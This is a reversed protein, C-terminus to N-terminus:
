YNKDVLFYLSDDKCVICTQGTATQCTFAGEMFLSIVVVRQSTPSEQSKWFSFEMHASEAPITHSRNSELPALLACIQVCVEDSTTAEPIAIDRGTGLNSREIVAVANFGRLPVLGSEARTGEVGAVGTEGRFDTVGRSTGTARSKPLGGVEGRLAADGVLLDEGRDGVFAVEGTVRFVDGRGEVLCFDGRADAFSADDRLDGRRDDSGARECRGGICLEGTEPRLDGVM